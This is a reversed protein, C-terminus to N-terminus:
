IIMLQATFISLLVQQWCSVEGKAAILRMRRKLEQFDSRSFATIFTRNQKLLHVATDKLCEMYCIYEERSACSVIQMDNRMEILQFLVKKIYWYVPNWWFVTCFLDIGMKKIIDHNRIHISEHLLIYRLQEPRYSIQPLVICPHCIGVVCPSLVQKGYAIKIRDAWQCDTQEPCYQQCFSTWEMKPLLSVWRVFRCYVWLRYGFSCVAVTGWLLALLHWVAITFPKELLIYQLFRRCPILVRANTLAYGFYYGPRLIRLMFALIVTFMCAPGIRKLIRDSKFLFCVLLALGSDFLCRILVTWFAQEM